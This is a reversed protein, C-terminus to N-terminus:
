SESNYMYGLKFLQAGTTDASSVIIEDIPNGALPNTMSSNAYYLYPMDALLEQADLVADGVDEFVVHGRAAIVAAIAVLLDGDVDVDLVTVTCGIVADDETPLVTGSAGTFPIATGSVTGVTAGYAVGATFYIDIIDGTDIEHDAETATIEGDTDNTRTTLAGAWAQNLAVNQSGGGTAALATSSQITIGGLSVTLQITGALTM